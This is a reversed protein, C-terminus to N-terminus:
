AVKMTGRYEQIWLSATATPSALELRAAIKRLIFRLWDSLCSRYIVQTNRHFRYGKREDRSNTEGRLLNEILTKLLRNVSTVHRKLSGRGTLRAKLEEHTPKMSPFPRGSNLRDFMLRNKDIGCHPEFAIKDPQDPVAGTRHQNAPRSENPKRAINKALATEATAL